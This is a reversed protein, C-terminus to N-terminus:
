ILTFHQLGQVIGDHMNDSTVYDALAKMKPNGNGMVVPHDVLKLMQEDNLEDGFGYTPTGSLGAENLLTLIGTRKSVGAMMTDLGRPNNRVLDLQGAFQRNYLDEKGTNFVFLFNVEHTQYWDPIVKADLKLLAFNERTAETERSLAFTQNNFWAVPDGQKAAFANFAEILPQPIVAADLKRGQYQVYSGNASVISDIGTQDLVYQIEFINRGTAIVPLVDNQRLQDIATLTSKALSKDDRLLTGDLDFFVVAKPM